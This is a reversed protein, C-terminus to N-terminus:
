FTITASSKVVVKCFTDANIVEMQQNKEASVKEEVLIKSDQFDSAEAMENSLGLDNEFRKESDDEELFTKSEQYIQVELNRQDSSFYLKKSAQFSKVEALETSPEFDTEDTKVGFKEELQKQSEQYIFVESKEKNQESINESELGTTGPSAPPAMTGGFKTLDTLGIEVLPPLNHWGFLVPVGPNESRGVARSEVGRGWIEKAKDHNKVAHSHFENEDKVISLSIKSIRTFQLSEM